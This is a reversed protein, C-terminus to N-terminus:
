KLQETNVPPPQVDEPLGPFLQRMLTPNRQFGDSDLYTWEAPGSPDWIAMLYGVAHVRIEKIRIQMDRPVFCISKGGDRYTRTPSSYEVREVTTGAASMETMAAQTAPVLKDRGGAMQVVPPYTMGIITAADNHKLAEGLATARRVVTAADSECSRDEALASSCVSSAALMLLLPIRHKM